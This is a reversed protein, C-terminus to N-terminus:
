SRGGRAAPHNIMVLVGAQSVSLLGHEESGKTRARDFFTAWAHPYGHGHEFHLADVKRRIAADAEDKDAATVDFAVGEAKAAFFRPLETEWDIKQTQTNRSFKM